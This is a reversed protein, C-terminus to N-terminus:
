GIGEMVLQRSATLRQQNFREAIKEAQKKTAKHLYAETRSRAYPILRRSIATAYHVLNTASAFGNGDKTITDRFRGNQMGHRRVYKPVVARGGTQKGFYLLAPAWGSKGKGVRKQVSRVYKRFASKKVHMKNVFKWRGINLTNRGSESGGRAETVRGDKRRYKQHHRDMESISANPRYLNKDVGYVAGRKTKFVQAPVDSSVVGHEIALAWQAQFREDMAVIVKGIDKAVRKRGQSLTKPPTGKMITNLIVRMGDLGMFRMSVGMDRLHHALRSDLDGPNYIM